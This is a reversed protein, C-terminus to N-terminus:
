VACGSVWARNPPRDFMTWRGLSDAREILTTVEPQWGEFDALAEQRAGEADWREYQESHAVQREVIGVFNVLGAKSLHYTVAHRGPGAWVCATEP